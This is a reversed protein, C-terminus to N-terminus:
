KEGKKNEKLMNQLKLYEQAILNGWHSIQKELSAVRGELIELDLSEQNKKSDELDEIFGRGCELCTYLPHYSSLTDASSDCKRLIDGGNEDILTVVSLARKTPRKCFPCIPINDNM